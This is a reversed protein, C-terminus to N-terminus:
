KKKGGKKLSKYEAQKFAEYSSKTNKAIEIEKPDTKNQQKLYGNTIIIVSRNEHPIRHYYWFLRIWSDKTSGRVEYIRSNKDVIKVAGAEYPPTRLLKVMALSTNKEEEPLNDIFKSAKAITLVEVSISGVESM